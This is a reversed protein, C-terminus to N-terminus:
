LPPRRRSVASLSEAEIGALTVATPARLTHQIEAVADTHRRLDRIEEDTAQAAVRARYTLDTAPAGPAGFNGEVERVEIGRRAAERYLDDCSCTALALFLVEGGSASSGFGSAKPPIDLSHGKGDTV